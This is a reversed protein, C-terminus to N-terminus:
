RDSHEPSDQATERGPIESSSLGKRDQVSVNPESSCDQPDVCYVGELIREREKKIEPDNWLELFKAIKKDRVRDNGEM